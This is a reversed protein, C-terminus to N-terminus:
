GARLTRKLANLCWAACANILRNYIEGHIGCAELVNSSGDDAVDWPSRMFQTSPTRGSLNSVVSNRSFAAQEFPEPCLRVVAPAVDIFGPSILCQVRLDWLHDSYGIRYPTSQTFESVRVPFMTEEVAQGYKITASQLLRNWSQRIDAKSLRPTVFEIGSGGSGANMKLVATLEAKQFKQICAFCTEPSDCDAHVLSRIGTGDAVVQQASKDHILPVLRGEHYFGTDLSIRGGEHRIRGQRALEPLLNTNTAFLVSRGDYFLRGDSETCRSAILDLPGAIVTLCEGGLRENADRLELNWRMELREAFRGARNFFEPIHLFGSQHGLLAVGNKNEKNKAEFAAAMHAARAEDGDATLSSLAANSGNAEILRLDGKTDLTVDLLVIAYDSSAVQVRHRKARETDLDTLRPFGHGASAVALEMARKRLKSRIPNPNM